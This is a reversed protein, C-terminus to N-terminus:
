FDPQGNPDAAVLEGDILCSRAPFACLIVVQEGERARQKSRSCPRALSPNFAIRLVTDEKQPRRSLVVDRPRKQRSNANNSNPMGNKPVDHACFLASGLSGYGSPDSM